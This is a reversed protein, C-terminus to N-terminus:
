CSGPLPFCWRSDSSRVVRAIRTSSDRQGTEHIHRRRRSSKRTVDGQCDFPRNLHDELLGCIAGLKSVFTEPNRDTRCYRGLLYALAAAVPAAALGFFVSPSFPVKDTRRDMNMSKPMGQSKFFDCIASDVNHSPCMYRTSDNSMTRAPRTIPFFRTATKLIDTQPFLLGAITAMAVHARDLREKHLREQVELASKM